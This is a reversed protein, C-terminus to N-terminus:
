ATLPVPSTAKVVEGTNVVGFRPVGEAAVSVLALPRGIEVPTLPKPVFTAVASPVLTPEAPATTTLPPASPVGDEPVSVLAVPKGNVVPTVPVSGTSL